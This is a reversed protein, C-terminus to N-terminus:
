KKIVLDVDAYRLFAERVSLREFPPRLKSLHDQNFDVKSTTLEAYTSALTDVLAECQSMLGELDLDRAYWELMSFEPSHTSSAIEDRFCPTLAYVRAVHVGDSGLYRKLAYEPSTHLWHRLEGSTSNRHAYPASVSMADLQPELGPSVVVCPPELELFGERHFFSRLAWLLHARLVLDHKRM